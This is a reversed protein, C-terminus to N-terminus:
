SKITNLIELIHTWGGEHDQRAAEDRFKVHSLNVQTQNENVREFDLTVVSGAISHDSEWTFKLRSPREIELYEGTHPIDLGEPHMIITFGGGVVPNTEVDSAPMDAMPYMFRPLIEDDLWADFVKEIPANIIKKINVSLESM